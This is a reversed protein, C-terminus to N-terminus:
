PATVRDGQNTFQDTTGPSVQDLNTPAQSNGNPMTSPVYNGQNRGNTGPDDFSLDHAQPTGGSDPTIHVHTTLTQPGNAATDLTVMVTYTGVPRGGYDHTGDYARNTSSRGVSQRSSGDGWNVWVNTVPNNNPQDDYWAPWNAPLAIHLTYSSDETSSLMPLTDTNTVLAVTGAGPRNVATGNHFTSYFNQASQTVQNSMAAAADASLGNTAASLNLSAVWRSLDMKDFDLAAMQELSFGWCRPSEASGWPHRPVTLDVEVAYECWRSNPDCGGSLYFHAGNNNPDGHPYWGETAAPLSTPVVLPAYANRADGGPPVAAYAWDLLVASHINDTPAAAADNPHFLFRQTNVVLPTGLGRAPDAAYAATDLTGNASLYNITPWVESHAFTYLPFQAYDKTRKRAGLGGTAQKDTIAFRYLCNGDTHCSGIATVFENVSGSVAAFTPDSPMTATVGYDGPNYFTSQEHIRWNVDVDLVNGALDVSAGSPGAPLKTADCSDDLKSCTLFALVGPTEPCAQFEPLAAASIILQLAQARTMSGPQIGQQNLIAQVDANYLDFAAQQAAQSVCYGPWRWTWVQSHSENARQVWQGNNMGTYHAPATIASSYLDMAIPTTSATTSTDAIAIADLQARGQENVVLALMDDFVCFSRTKEVCQRLPFGSKKSCYEGLYHYLGKRRAVALKVEDASCSGLKYFADSGEIVYDKCCNNGFAKSNPADQMFSAGAQIGIATMQAAGASMGASALGSALTDAMLGASAGGTAVMTAAILAVTIFTNWFNGVAYHCRRNQGSFVYPDNANMGKQVADLKAVAQNVEGLGQGVQNKISLQDWGWANAHVCNSVAAMKACSKTTNSCVYTQNQAMAVGNAQIEAPASSQLTCNDKALCKPIAGNQCMQTTESKVCRGDPGLAQNPVPNGSADTTLSGSCQSSSAVCNTVPSTCPVARQEMKGTVPDAVSEYCTDSCTTQPPSYCVYNTVQQQDTVVTTNLPATTPPTGSGTSPATGTSAAPATGTNTVTTSLAVCDKGGPLQQSTTWNGFACRYTYTADTIYTISNIAVTANITAATLSCTDKVTNFDAGSDCSLVPDTEVCQFQRQWIWCASSYGPLIPAAISVTQGPAVQYNKPANDTCTRGAMMEQCKLTAHAPAALLAAALAALAGFTKFLRLM